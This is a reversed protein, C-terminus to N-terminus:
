CPRFVGHRKADVINGRIERGFGGLPRDVEV